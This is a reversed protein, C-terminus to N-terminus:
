ASSPMRSLLGDRPSPSTYLLCVRLWEDQVRAVAACAHRRYQALLLAVLFHEEATGSLFATHWLGIVGRVFPFQCGHQQSEFLEFMDQPGPLKDDPCVTLAYFEYIRHFFYTSDKRPPDPEEAAKIELQYVSGPLQVM